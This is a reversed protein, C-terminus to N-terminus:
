NKSQLHRLKKSIDPNGLVRNGPLDLDGSYRAAGTVKERADTRLISEGIMSFEM